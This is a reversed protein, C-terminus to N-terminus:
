ITLERASSTTERLGSAEAALLARVREQELLATSVLTRGAVKSVGGVSALLAICDAVQAFISTVEAGLARILEM